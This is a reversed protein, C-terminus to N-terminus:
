RRHLYNRGDYTPDIGPKGSSIDRISINGLLGFDLFEDGVETRGDPDCCSKSCLVSTRAAGVELVGFILDFLEVIVRLQVILIGPIDLAFEVFAEVEHM